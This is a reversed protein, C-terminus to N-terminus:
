EVHHCSCNSSSFGASATPHFELFEIFVLSGVVNSHMPFHLWVASLVIYIGTTSHYIINGGFIAKNNTWAVICIYTSQLYSPVRGYMKREFPTSPVIFYNSISSCWCNNNNNNGLIYFFSMAGGWQTLKAVLLYLYQLVLQNMWSIGFLNMWEFLQLNIWNSFSNNIWFNCAVSVIGIYIYMIWIFQSANRKESCWRIFSLYVNFLIFSWVKRYNSLPVTRGYSANTTVNLLNWRYKQHLWRNPGLYFTIKTLINKRTYHIHVSLNWPLWQEWHIKMEEIFSPVKLVISDISQLSHTLRRLGKNM